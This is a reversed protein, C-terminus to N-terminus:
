RDPAIVADMEVRPRRDVTDPRGDVPRQGGDRLAPTTGTHHDDEGAHADVSRRARPRQAAAPRIHHRLIFFRRDDITHRARDDRCAGRGGDERQRVDCGRNLV